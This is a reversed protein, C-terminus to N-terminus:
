KRKLPPCAVRFRPRDTRRYTVFIELNCASKTNSSRGLRGRSSQWTDPRTKKTEKMQKKEKIEGVKIQRGYKRMKEGEVHNKKWM